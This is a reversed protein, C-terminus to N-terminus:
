HGLAPSTTSSSVGGVCACLPRLIDGRRGKGREGSGFGSEGGAGEWRRSVGGGM